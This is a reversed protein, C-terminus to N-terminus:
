ICYKYFNRKITSLDSRTCTDSQTQRQTCLMPYIVFCNFMPQIVSALYVDWKNIDNVHSLIYEVAGGNRNHWIIAHTTWANKLKFLHTDFREQTEQPSAGLFLCDWDLPLQDLAKDLLEIEEIFEVDDEFIIFVSEDVGKRLLAIHSDRCGIWGPKKDIGSFRRPKFGFSALEERVVAWRDVRRDLNIVYSQM